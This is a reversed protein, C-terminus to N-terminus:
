EEEDEESDSVLEPEVDMDLDEDLDEDSEEVFASLSCIVDDLDRLITIDKNKAIDLDAITIADGIKMDKVDVLIDDEPLHKPLCEIEIEDLQQSLTSPQIKIEERNELSIPIVVRIEEDMSVKQFDVHLYLDKIPHKQVEKIIVPLEKGDVKLGIITAAGAERDIRRFEPENVKVLVTEEGRSYIVGPIMEERRIAHSAGTGKRERLQGELNLSM